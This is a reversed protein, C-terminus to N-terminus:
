VSCLIARYPVTRKQRGVFFYYTDIAIIMDFFAECSECEPQLIV